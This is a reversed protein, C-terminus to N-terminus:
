ARPENQSPDRQVTRGLLSGDAPVPEAARFKSPESCSNRPHRLLQGLDYILNVLRRGGIYRTPRVESVEVPVECLRLGAKCARLVLETDFLEREAITMCVHPLVIDRRLIKIGHTDTGPFNFAKRLVANMCYSLLRRHFPRRDRSLKHMKSGIVVDCGNLLEFGKQLFNLNWWDVNFIVIIGAKANLIGVRLAGGYSARELKLLRVCPFAEALKQCLEYSRDKSGNEVLIIEPLCAPELRGVGAMFDEISRQLIVEENFVPFIISCTPGAM